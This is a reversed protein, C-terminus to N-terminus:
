RPADCEQTMLPLVFHKAFYKQLFVERSQPEVMAADLDTLFSRRSARGCQLFVSVSTRCYDGLRARLGDGSAADRDKKTVHGHFFASRIDYAKKIDAIVRSCETKVVMQLAAAVRNRLKYSVEGNDRDTLFLSELSIIDFAIEGVADRHDRLGEDYFEMATVGVQQMSDIPLTHPSRTLTPLVERIFRRCHNSETHKVCFSGGFDNRRGPTAMASKVQATDLTSRGYRILRVRNPGYLTLTRVLGRLQDELDSSTVGSGTMTIKADPVHEWPVDFWIEVADIDTRYTVSWVQQMIVTPGLRLLRGEPWIGNAEAVVRWSTTEGLFKSTIQRTVNEVKPCPMVDGSLQLVSELLEDAYRSAGVLDGAVYGAATEVFAQQEPLSRKFEFRDFADWQRKLHLDQLIQCSGCIYHEATQVSSSPGAPPSRVITYTMYSSNLVRMKGSARYKHMAARVAMAFELASSDLQKRDVADV